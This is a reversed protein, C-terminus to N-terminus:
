SLKLVTKFQKRIERLDVLPEEEIHLLHVLEHIIGKDGVTCENSLEKIYSIVCALHLIEPLKQRFTLNSYRCIEEHKNKLEQYSLHYKKNEILYEM